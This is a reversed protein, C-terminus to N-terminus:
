RRVFPGAGRFLREWRGQNLAPYPWANCLWAEAVADELRTGVIRGGEWLRYVMGTFLLPEWSAAAGPIDGALLVGELRKAGEDRCSRARDARRASEADWEEALKSLGEVPDLDIM